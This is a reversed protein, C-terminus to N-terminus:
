STPWRRPPTPTIKDIMSWPFSVNEECSLWRLFDEPVFGGKQWGEAITLCSDRLKKGNQACNDMSVVAIPHRGGSVASVAPSVAISLTHRPRDPAAPWIRRWWPCSRATWIGSPM